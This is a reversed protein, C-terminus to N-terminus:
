TVVGVSKNKRARQMIAVKHKDLYILSSANEAHFNDASLCDILQKVAAVNNNAAKLIRNAAYRNGKITGDLKPLQMKTKYYDVIENIESNGFESKTQLVKTNNKIRLEKSRTLTNSRQEGTTVKNNSQQEGKTNGNGQYQSWKCISVTTFRNNSSLTVLRSSELRKLAKYLTSPNMVCAETLQFRGGTWKGTDKNVLLLLTVFLHFATHDYKFVENNLTKRYLKIWGTQM